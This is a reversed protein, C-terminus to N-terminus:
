YDEPKKAIFISGRVGKTLPYPYRDMEFVEIKLYKKIYELLKHHMSREIEYMVMKDDYHSEMAYESHLVVEEFELKRNPIYLPPHPFYGVKSGKFDRKCVDKFILHYGIIVTSVGLIVTLFCITLFIIM